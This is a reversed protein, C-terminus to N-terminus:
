VVRTQATYTAITFQSKRAAIGSKVDVRIEYTGQQMPNWTFRNSRSYDRVVQFGGGPTEVSFRYVAKTGHGRSTAAWIVPSGVVHDAPAFDTLSVSLLCRDELTTCEPQHRRPSRLPNRRALGRTSPINIQRKM